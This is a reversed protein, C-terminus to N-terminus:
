FINKPCSNLCVYILMMKESEDPTMQPDLDWLRVSFNFKYTLLIIFPDIQIM